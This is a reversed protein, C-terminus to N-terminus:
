YVNVCRAHIAGELQDADLAQLRNYELTERQNTGSIHSNALQLPSPLGDVATCLFMMLVSIRLM